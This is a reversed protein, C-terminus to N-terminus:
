QPTFCFRVLQFLNAMRWIDQLYIDLAVDATVEQNIMQILGNSDSEVVLSGGPELVGSSIVMELGQRIAEVEAMIAAAFQQGGVGGVLKPLGAFDRLVWGVWRQRSSTLLYENQDKLNSILLLPGQSQGGDIM